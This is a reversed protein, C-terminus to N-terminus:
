EEGCLNVMADAITDPHVTRAVAFAEIELIITEEDAGRGRYGEIIMHIQKENLANRVFEDYDDLVSFFVGAQRDGLTGKLCDQIVHHAEHRLTDLDNDTWMVERSSISSANDQCVVLVSYTPFYAGDVPENNCFEVDNLVVEVGVSKLTEMLRHHEGITFASASPSFLLSGGLLLSSLKSFLKM